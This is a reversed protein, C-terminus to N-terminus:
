TLRQRKGIGQIWSSQRNCTKLALDVQSQLAYCSAKNYYASAYDPSSLAKDFSAIAQPDRGMQVLAYGRKDWAKPNPKLHIAQDFSAIADEYRGLEELALGRNLWATPDDPQISPETLPFHFGWQLLIGLV